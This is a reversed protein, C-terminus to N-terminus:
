TQSEYSTHLENGLTALDTRVQMKNTFQCAHFDTINTETRISLESGSDNRILDCHIEVFLM